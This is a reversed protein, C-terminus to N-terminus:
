DEDSQVGRDDLKANVKYDDEVEWGGKKKNRAVHGKVVVSIEGWIFSSDEKRPLGPTSYIHVVFSHRNKGAPEIKIDKVDFSSYNANTLTTISSVEGTNIWDQDDAWEEVVNYLDIDKM